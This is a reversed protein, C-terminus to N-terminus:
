VLYFINNHILGGYLYAACLDGNSNARAIFIITVTASRVFFHSNHHGM